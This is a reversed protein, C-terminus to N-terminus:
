IKKYKGNFEHKPYKRENKKMKKLFVSTLDIKLANVMSLLYAFIDAIEDAIEDKMSCITQNDIEEINPNPNQFLFIELLESAEISIAIALEKPTHFKNWDREDVFNQM